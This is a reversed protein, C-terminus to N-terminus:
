TILICIGIPLYGRELPSALSSTSRCAGGKRESAGNGRVSRPFSNHLLTEANTTTTYGEPVGGRAVRVSAEARANEERMMSASGLSTADTRRGEGGRGAGRGGRDIGGGTM